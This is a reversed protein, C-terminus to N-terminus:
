ETMLLQNRRYAAKAAASPGGASSEGIEFAMAAIQSVSNITIVPTTDAADDAQAFYVEGTTPTTLATFGTDETYDKTESNTFSAQLTSNGASAFAALTNQIATATYNYAQFVAQILEPTADGVVQFAMRYGRGCERDSAFGFTAAENTFPGEGWFAAMKCFSVLDGGPVDTPTWTTACGAVAATEAAVSGLDSARLFVLLLVRSGAAPNMAATNYSTAPATSAGQDLRTITLTM